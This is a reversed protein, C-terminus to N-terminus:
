KQGVRDGVQNQEISILHSEFNKAVKEWSYKKEIIKRGIKGWEKLNEKNNYAYMISEEIEVPKTSSVYIGCKEKSMISRHAPIDTLIVVKEMALYELLKLPCQYRWFPHNPLPCLCVDSMGIYKPVKGYDVPDHIIVNQQLGESRILDRLRPFSPGTGLLFLVVNPYADKLMKMARIAESLGRHASFVGHYFVIFKGSLGHKRRLEMSQSASNKPDFLTTSVGDAWVLVKDSDINFRKCIEKKMLCTIITIGDFLKKAISISTSFICNRLSGQFGFVEVPMSRVDLILKVNKLKLIFIGLTLSFISTDAQAIIFDPKSVLVYFPVLFLLVIAYLISSVIPAYRLPIPIM